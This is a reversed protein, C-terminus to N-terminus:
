NGATQCIVLLVLQSILGTRDNAETGKLIKKTYVLFGTTNFCIIFPNMGSVPVKNNEIFIM